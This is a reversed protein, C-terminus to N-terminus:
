SKSRRFKTFRSFIRSEFPEPVSPPPYIASPGEPLAPVHANLEDVEDRLLRADEKSEVLLNQLEAVDRKLAENDAVLSEM